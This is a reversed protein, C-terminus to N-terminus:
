LKLYIHNNNFNNSKYKNESNYFIEINKLNKTIKYHLKIGLCDEEPDCMFVHMQIISALILSIHNSRSRQLAQESRPM